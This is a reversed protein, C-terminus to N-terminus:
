KGVEEALADLAATLESPTACTARIYWDCSVEWRGDNKQEVRVAPSEWYLARAGFNAEGM